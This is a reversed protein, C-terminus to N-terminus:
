GEPWSVAKPYLFYFFFLIFFFIIYNACPRNFSTITVGAKFNCKPVASEPQRISLPTNMMGQGFSNRIFM